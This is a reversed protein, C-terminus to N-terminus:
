TIFNNSKLSQKLQNNIEFALDPNEEAGDVDTWAATNVIVSPNIRKIESELQEFNTLDLEKPTPASYDINRSKLERTLALGLQGTGGTVLWVM